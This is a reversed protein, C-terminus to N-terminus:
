DVPRGPDAAAASKRPVTFGLEMSRLLRISPKEVLRHVAYGAVSSLVTLVLVTFDFGFREPDPVLALLRPMLSIWLTPHILYLSYSSDGLAQALKLNWLQSLRDSAELATCGLVLMFSPPGWCLTQALGWPYKPQIANMSLLAFVFGFVSGIVLLPALKQVVPRRFLRYAVLGSFFDWVIPDGYQGIAYNDTTTALLGLLAFIGGIWLFSRHMNIIVLGFVAYFFMEYVLSWGVGTLPFHKPVPIFFYSEWITSTPVFPINFQWILTVMWYLPVIRTIRDIYFNRLTLGRDREALFAMIFGSIVFFIHVGGPACYKISDFWSNAPILGPQWGKTYYWGQHGVVVMLAAVGRLFQISSFKGIATENQQTLAHM